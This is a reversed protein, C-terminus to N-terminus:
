LSGGRRMRKLKESFNEVRHRKKYLQRSYEVQEVRNSRSPICSKMGKHSIYERLADCDYAKDMLVSAPMMGIMLSRLLM